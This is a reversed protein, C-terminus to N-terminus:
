SGRDKGSSNIPWSRHDSRGEARVHLSSKGSFKTISTGRVLVKEIAKISPTDEPGEQPVYLESPDELRVYYMWVLM